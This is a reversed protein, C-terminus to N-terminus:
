ALSRFVCYASVLVLCWRWGSFSRLRVGRGLLWDEMTEMGEDDESDLDLFRIDVVGEVVEGIDEVVLQNKRDPDPEVVLM